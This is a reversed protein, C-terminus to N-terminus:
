EFYLGYLDDKTLKSVPVVKGDVHIDEMIVNFVVVGDEVSIWYEKIYPNKISVETLFDDPYHCGLSSIPRIKGKWENNVKLGVMTDEQFYDRCLEFPSIKQRKLSDM